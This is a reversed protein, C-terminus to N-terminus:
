SLKWEFLLKQIKRVLLLGHQSYARSKTGSEMTLSGPESSVLQHDNTNAMRPTRTDRKSYKGKIANAAILKRTETNMEIQQQQQEQQAQNTDIDSSGEDNSFGLADDQVAAQLTFAPRSGCCCSYWFIYQYENGHLWTLM